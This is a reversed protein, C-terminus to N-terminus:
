AMGLTGMSTHVHKAGKATHTMWAKFKTCIAFLAVTLLIWLNWSSNFKFSSIHICQLAAVHHSFVFSGSAHLRKYNIKKHKMQWLFAYCKILYIAHLSCELNCAHKCYKQM